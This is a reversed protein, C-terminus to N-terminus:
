EEDDEPQKVKKVRRVKRAPKIEEPEEEDDESDDDEASDSNGIAEDFEKAYDELSKLEDEPDEPENEEEIEDDDEPVEEVAIADIYGAPLIVKIPEGPESEEDILEATGVIDVKSTVKKKDDDDEEVIGRLERDITDIIEVGNPISDYIDQLIEVSMKLMFSLRKIMQKIQAERLEEGLDPHNVSIQLNLYNDTKSSSENGVAESDLNMLRMIEEVAEPDKEKLRSIVNLSMSNIIKMEARTLQKVSRAFYWKPFFAQFTVNQWKLGISSIGDALASKVSDELGYNGDADELVCLQSLDEIRNGKKDLVVLGIVPIPQIIKLKNFLNSDDAPTIFGANESIVIPQLTTFFQVRQHSVAFSALSLTMNEPISEQVGITVLYRRGEYLIVDKQIDL